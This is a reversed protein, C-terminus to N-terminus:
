MLKELHSLNGEVMTLQFLILFNTCCGIERTNEILPFGKMQAGHRSGYYTRTPPPLEM